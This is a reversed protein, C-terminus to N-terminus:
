VVDGEVPRVVTLLRRELNNLEGLFRDPDAAHMGHVYLVPPDTRLEIVLTGPTLTILHALAAIEFPTRSRLPMEVIAPAVGSGPTVIEKAVAINALLFIRGYHALFAAARGCRLAARRPRGSPWATM